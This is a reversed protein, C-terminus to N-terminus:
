APAGLELTVVTGRSSTEIRLAGGSAEATRRAIDLGLGPRGRGYSAGREPAGAGPMGAGRDSVVVSAGGGAGSAPGCVTFARAGGPTHAFVNGLLADVAAALDSAPVRVPLPVDPIQMSFEPGGRRGARELLAGAWRRGRERRLERGPGRTGDPPGRLDGRRHGPEVRGRRGAPPGPGRPLSEADLRLATLPTRLRHALDAAAEREETLLEGIRGALSNVATGVERVEPPGAPTTRASLDGSALRHATAALDTVPRTLSRALRDAVLLALVLLTLGLGALVLWTRTVGSRLQETPVFVEIVATGDSRRVPQALRTGDDGPVVAASAPPEDDGLAGTQGLWEGDTWRVGVTRKESTAAALNAAVQERQDLGVSPILVQLQAQAADLARAAAVRAVLSAAPLLFALLVVSTTALCSCRSAAACRGPEVLKVGVGRVRRCTRPEQATEGLKRRLWSLHVDVTKDAGGYPQHWM